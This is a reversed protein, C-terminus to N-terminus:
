IVEFKYIWVRSQIDKCKLPISRTSYNHFGDNEHARKVYGVERREQTQLKEVLVTTDSSSRMYMRQIFRGDGRNEEREEKQIETRKRM